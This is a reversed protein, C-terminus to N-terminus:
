PSAGGLPLIPHACERVDIAEMARSLRSCVEGMWRGGTEETRREDPWGWSRRRSQYRRPQLMGSGRKTEGFTMQELGPPAADLASIEPRVVAGARRLGGGAWLGNRYRVLCISIKDMHLLFVIM